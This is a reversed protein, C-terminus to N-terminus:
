QRTFLLLGKQFTIVPWLNLTVGQGSLSLGLKMSNGTISHKCHPRSCAAPLLDKMCTGSTTCTIHQDFLLGFPVEEMSSGALRCSGRFGAARVRFQPCIIM